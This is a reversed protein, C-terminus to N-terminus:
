TSNGHVNTTRSSQFPQSKAEDKIKDHEDLSLQLIASTIFQLNIDTPGPHARHVSSLFSDQKNQDEVVQYMSLYTQTKTLNDLYIAPPVVIKNRARAM